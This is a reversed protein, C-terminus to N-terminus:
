CQEQLKKRKNKKVMKSTEFEPLLITQFNKTLFRSTKKHVENILRKIRDILRYYAKRIRHRKKRKKTTKIKSQLNDLHKVLRHIRSLDNKGLEGCIGDSSFYAQFTRVGPDLAVYEKKNFNQSEEKVEYPILLWFKKCRDLTIKCDYKVGEKILNQAKKHSKSIKLVEYKNKKCLKEPYNKNCLLRKYFYGEKKILRKPLTISDKFSKKRRFHLEFKKILGNKLLSFCTKRAKFADMISNQKIHSPTSKLWIHKKTFESNKGVLKNMTGFKNIYKINNDEKRKKYNENIENISQNYLFRSTGLWERLIKEQRKNPYIRTKCTRLIPKLKVRKPSKEDDVIKRKRSSPEFRYTDFVSDEKELNIRISKGIGQYHTYWSVTPVKTLENSPIFVHKSLETCKRNWWTKM